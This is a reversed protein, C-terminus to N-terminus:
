HCCGVGSNHCGAVGLHHWIDGLHLHFIAGPKSGSSWGFQVVGNLASDHEIQDQPRIAEHAGWGGQLNGLLLLSTLRM